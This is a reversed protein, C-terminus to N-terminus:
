DKKKLKILPRSIFLWIVSGLFIGTMLCYIALKLLTRATWGEGGPRLVGVLIPYVFIMMVGYFTMHGLWSHSAWTVFRSKAVKLFISSM